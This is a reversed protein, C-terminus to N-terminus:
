KAGARSILGVIVQVSQPEWRGLWSIVREDYDGLEVGAAACVAHVKAVIAQDWQGTAPPLSTVDRSDEMAERESQYPGFVQKMAAEQKALQREYEDVSPYDGPRIM